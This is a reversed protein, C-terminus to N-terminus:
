ATMRLPAFFGWMKCKATARKEEGVSANLWDIVISRVCPVEISFFLQFPHGM